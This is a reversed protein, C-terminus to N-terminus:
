SADLRVEVISASVHPINEAKVQSALADDGKRVNTQSSKGGTGRSLHSLILSSELEPM